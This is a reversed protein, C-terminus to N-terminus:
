AIEVDLDVLLALIFTLLFSFRQVHLSNVFTEPRLVDKLHISSRFLEVKVESASRQNFHSAPGTLLPVPHLSILHRSLSMSFTYSSVRCATDQFSLCFSLQTSTFVDLLLLALTVLSSCSAALWPDCLLLLAASYHPCSLSGVWLLDRSQFGHGSLPQPRLPALDQVRPQSGM